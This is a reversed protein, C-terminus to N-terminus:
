RKVQKSEMVRLRAIKKNVEIFLEDLQRFAAYNQKNKKIFSFRDVFNLPTAEEAKSIVDALLLIGKEMLESTSGSKDKFLETLLAEYEKWKNFDQQFDIDNFKSM